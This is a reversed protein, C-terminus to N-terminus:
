AARLADAIRQFQDALDRSISSTDVSLTLNVVSTTPTAALRIDFSDSVHWYTRQGIRCDSWGDDDDRGCTVVKGDRVEVLWGTLRKKPNTSVERFSVRDGVKFKPKDTTEPATATEAAPEATPAERLLRWPGTDSYGACRCKGDQEWIFSDGFERIYGKALESTIKVVEGNAAEYTKGVKLKLAEVKEVADVPLWSGHKLIVKDDTVSDVEATYDGTTFPEGSKLRVTDNPSISSVLEYEFYSLFWDDGADDEVTITGIDNIDKVAYVCSETVDLESVLCRVRDGRKVKMESM